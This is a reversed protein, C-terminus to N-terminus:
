VLLDIRPPNRPELDAHAQYADVVHRPNHCPRSCPPALTSWALRYAPGGRSTNSSYGLPISAPGKLLEGQLVPEVPLRDATTPPPCRALRPTRIKTASNPPDFRWQAQPGVLMPPSQPRTSGCIRSRLSASVGVGLLGKCSGRPPASVTDWGPGANGIDTKACICGVGQLSIRSSFARIKQWSGTNCRILAEVIPVASTEKLERFCTQLFM